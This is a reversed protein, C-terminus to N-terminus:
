KGGGGLVRYLTVQNSLRALRLAILDQQAAYTSRQADLVELYSQAGERFRLDSLRQTDASATVLSQQADLREDLTGRVALTDAVERFASQIAREYEALTISQDAQAAALNARNNGGDFIPLVVQPLFSWAGAGAKFLDSLSGSAVGGAATLSVRPFFAARAAGVNAHAARLRHEAQQIDPRSTLVLSPLGVPLEGISSVRNLAVALSEDVPVGILLTLANESQAVLTTFRAVDVRAADVTTQARQVDLQSAVGNQFRHAVLAYASRQNELTERALRVREQDAALTLYVNAVEAILSIQVSRRAEETALYQQLARENLSRIRGFFDIEYGSFGVAAQYEHTTETRGRTSVSAPTRQALSSAGVEVTPTLAAREVGYLARAKDINLAAVRLDRNHELALGILRRLSEDTFYQQWAVAAATEISDDAPLKTYADGEPWAQPVPLVPREYQPALSSCGAVLVAAIVALIEKM